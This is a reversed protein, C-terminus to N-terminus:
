RPVVMLVPISAVITLTGLSQPEIGRLHLRWVTQRGGLVTCRHVAPTM